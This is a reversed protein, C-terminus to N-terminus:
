KERGHREEKTTKGKARGRIEGQIEVMRDKKQRRANIPTRGHGLKARIQLSESHTQSVSLKQNAGTAESPNTGGPAAASPTVRNKGSFFSSRKISM